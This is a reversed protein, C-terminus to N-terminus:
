AGLRDSTGSRAGTVGLGNLTSRSGYVHLKFAWVRSGAQIAVSGKVEFEVGLM